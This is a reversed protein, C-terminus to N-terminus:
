PGPPREFGVEAWLRKDFTAVLTAGDTRSVERIVYDSFDGRGGEYSSLARTMEDPHQFRLQRSRLLAHITTAIETKAFSYGSELVWVLECVVVDVVLLHEERSAARRILARARSAQVEDDQVLFRVLVNTDLARL